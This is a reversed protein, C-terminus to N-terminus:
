NRLCHWRCVLYPQGELQALVNTPQIAMRLPKYYGPVAESALSAQGGNSLPLATLTGQGMAATPVMLSISNDIRITIWANLKFANDAALADKGNM